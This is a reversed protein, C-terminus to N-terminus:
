NPGVLTLEGPGTRSLADRLAPVLPMLDELVNSRAVLVIVAIPNGKLNQQFRLNQDATVFADFGAQAARRLLDGNKTGAWGAQQVTRVEIGMLERGLRRPLQEDLLVRM